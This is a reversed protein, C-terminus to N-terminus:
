AHVRDHATASALVLNSHAVDDLDVLDNGLRTLHDTQGREKEDIAVIDRRAGVLKLIDSHGSLDNALGLAGLDADDLELVLGAVLLALPVTLPVGLDLDGPDLSPNVCPVCFPRM